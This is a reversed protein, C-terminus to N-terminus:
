RCRRDVVGMGAEALGHLNYAAGLVVADDVFTGDRQNIWLNNPDADNAVYVDLWGDDDFDATVVGLGADEVTTIGARRSVDEFRGGGANHYLLDHVGSFATPGCYERRGSEDACEREPDFAVYRTM